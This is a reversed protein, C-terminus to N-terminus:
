STTSGSPVASAPVLPCATEIKQARASLKSEFGEVKTIRKAILAVRNTKGAGQATTERAEAKTVWNEARTERRAIRALTRPALACKANTGTSSGNTSAASAMGATGIVLAGSMAMSVVIRRIM